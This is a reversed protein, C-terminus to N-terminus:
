FKCCIPLFSFANYAITLFDLNQARLSANWILVMFKM